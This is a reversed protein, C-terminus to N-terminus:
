GGAERTLLESQVASGINGMASPGMIALTPMIVDVAFDIDLGELISKSIGNIQSDVLNHGMLTFGEELFEIPVGIAM